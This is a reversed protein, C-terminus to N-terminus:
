IHFFIRGIKNKINKKIQFSYNLLKGINWKSQSLTTRIEDFKQIVELKKANINKFVAKEFTIQAIREEQHM